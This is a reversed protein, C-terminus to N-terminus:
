IAKHKNVFHWIAVIFGGVYKTVRQSEYSRILVFITESFNFM